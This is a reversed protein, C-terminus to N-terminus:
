AGAFDDRTVRWAGDLWAVIERAGPHDSDAFRARLRARGAEGLGELGTDQMASVRRILTAALDRGLVAEAARAFAAGSDYRDGDRYSEALTLAPIRSLM